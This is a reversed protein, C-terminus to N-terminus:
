QTSALPQGSGGAFRQYDTASVVGDKNQDLAAFTENPFGRKAANLEDLTLSGDRNADHRALLKEVYRRMDRGAALKEANAPESNKVAKKAKAKPKAKAGAEPKPGEGAEPNVKASQNAAPRDGRDLFGDGNTDLGKFREAPAAPFQASFEGASIKGDQNTDAARLRERMEGGRAEAHGPIEGRELNPRRQAPCWAGNASLGLKYVSVRDEPPPERFYNFAGRGAM